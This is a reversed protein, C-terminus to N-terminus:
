CKGCTQCESRELKPDLLAAVDKEASTTNALQEAAQALAQLQRTDPAPSYNRAENSKMFDKTCKELKDPKNETAARGDLTILCKSNTTRQAQQGLGPM